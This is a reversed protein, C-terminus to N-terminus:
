SAGDSPAGAPLWGDAQLRHVLRERLHSQELDADASASRLEVRFRVDDPSSEALAVSVRGESKGAKHLIDRTYTEVHERMKVVDGKWPLQLTFSAVTPMRSANTVLAVNGNPVIVFRGSPDVLKTTRLEMAVVTGTVVQNTLTVLEVRDGVDYQDEFLFFFGTVIDRVLNQSGFALAATIFGASWVAPTVNVDWVSLLALAAAVMVIAVVLSKTLTSFTAVRPVHASIFRRAFLRAIFALVIRWVIIAILIVLVTWELRSALVNLDPGIAGPIM